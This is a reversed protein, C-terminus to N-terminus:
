GVPYEVARMPEVADAVRTYTRLTQEAWLVGDPGCTCTGPMGTPTPTHASYAIHKIQPTISAVYLWWTPSTSSCCIPFKTIVGGCSSFLSPTTAFSRFKHHRTSAPETNNTMRLAQHIRWIQVRNQQREVDGIFCCHAANNSRGKCFSVGYLAKFQTRRSHLM